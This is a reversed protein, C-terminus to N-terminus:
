PEGGNGDESPDPPRNDLDPRCSLGATSSPEAKPTGKPLGDLVEGQLFQVFEELTAMSCRGGMKEALFPVSIVRESHPTLNVIRLTVTAGNRTAYFSVPGSRFELAFFLRGADDSM